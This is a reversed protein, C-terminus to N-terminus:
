DLLSPDFHEVFFKNSWFGTKMYTRTYVVPNEPSITVQLDHCKRNMGCVVHINYTGYKVPIRLLERNGIHGYGQNNIYVGFGNAIGTFAGKRYLYINGDEQVGLSKRCEPCPDNINSVNITEGCNACRVRITASMKAQTSM